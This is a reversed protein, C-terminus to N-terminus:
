DMGRSLGAEILVDSFKDEDDHPVETITHNFYDAISDLVQIETAGTVLNFAAGKRGFRGSRGIRHLYTEFAPTKFDREVPVMYNIVLNVQQVDFGRSLVDTAILVRTKGERFEGVVRDRAALDLDGHISTCKYGDKELNSHLSRATEKTRVFIITQGVKQTLPFIMHQLVKMKDQPTPCVVKYQKIVDLSLEEKPVFVQNADSGAIRVAFAKVSDNFTASFFLVQCNPAQQRVAVIMRMSDSAFGDQKLMEDAEDLVLIKMTRYSLMRKSQWNKLKGHTGIVVQQQISAGRPIDFDPAATSIATISTHKGMKQLVALNQVVLERTPCVCLAQPTNMSPDVRSLMALVFCTTKGSGNHAQAILSCYPPALVMPLTVAQIRSPKEFKMEAYLGQLLPDSIPLDEFRKASQYLTEGTTITKIDEAEPEELRTSPGAEDREGRDAVGVEAKLPEGQSAAGEAEEEAGEKSFGLTEMINQLNDPSVEEPTAPDPAADKSESEQM